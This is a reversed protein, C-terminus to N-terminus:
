RLSVSAVEYRATKTGKPPKTKFKFSMSSGAPLTGNQTFRKNGVPQGSADLFTVEITVDRVQSSYGNRITGELIAEFVLNKRYTGTVAIYRAPNVREPESRKPPAPEDRTDNVQEGARKKSTKKPAPAKSDKQNESSSNGNGFGPLFSPVADNATTTKTNSSTDWIASALSDLNVIKTPNTASDDKSTTDAPPTAVVSDLKGVTTEAHKSGKRGFIFIAAAVVIVLLGGAALLLKTRNSQPSQLAPPNKTIPPPTPTFLQKLEAIAGAPVWEKMGEKWVLTKPTIGANKLEETSVPGVQEAAQNLYYYQM